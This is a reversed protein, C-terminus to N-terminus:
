KRSAMLIVKAFDEPRVGVLTIQKKKFFKTIAENVKEVPVGILAKELKEIQEEPHMYFDGTIRIEKIKGQSIKVTAEVLKGDPVKLEASGM